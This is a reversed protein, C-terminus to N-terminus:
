CSKLSKGGQEVSRPEGPWGWGTEGAGSRVLAVAEAPLLRGPGPLPIATLTQKDRALGRSARAAGVRSRGRPSPSLNLLLTGGAAM